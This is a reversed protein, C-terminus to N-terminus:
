KLLHELTSIIAVIGFISGWVLLALPWDISTAPKVVKPTEKEACEIAANILIFIIAKLVTLITPVFIIVLIILAWTPIFMTYEKLNLEELEIILNLPAAKCAEDALAIM